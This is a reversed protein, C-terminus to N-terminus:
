RWPHRRLPRTRRRRVPSSSQAPVPSPPFPRHRPRRSPTPRHCASTQRSAGAAPGSRTLSTKVVRHRQSVPGRPAIESRSSAPDPDCSREVHWASPAPSGGVGPRIAWRGRGPGSSPRRMRTESSTSSSAGCPPTARRDASPAANAPKSPGSADSHLSGSDTSRRQGSARDNTSAHESSVSRWARPPTTSWCNSRCGSSQSAGSAAGGLSAWSSARRCKSAGGSMTTAPGAFAPLLVKTLASAPRRTLTTSGRAPVVRSWTPTCTSRRPTWTM